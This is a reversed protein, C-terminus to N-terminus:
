SPAESELFRAVARLRRRLNIRDEVGFTAVERAQRWRRQRYWESFAAVDRLRDQAQALTAGEIYDAVMALWPGLTRLAPGRAVRESSRWAHARAWEYFRNPADRAQLADAPTM